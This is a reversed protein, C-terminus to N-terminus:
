ELVYGGGRVKRRSNPRIPSNILVDLHIVTAVACKCLKDDRQQHENNKHNLSIQFRCLNRLTLKRLPPTVSYKYGAFDNM